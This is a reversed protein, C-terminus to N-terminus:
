IQKPMYVCSEEMRRAYSFPLLDYLLFGIDSDALWFILKLNIRIINDSPLLFYFLWVFSPCPTQIGSVTNAWGVLPLLVGM